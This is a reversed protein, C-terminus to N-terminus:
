TGSGRTFAMNGTAAATQLVASAGTVEPHVTVVVVAGPAVPYDVGAVAARVAGFVGFSVWAWSTSINAIQIQRFNNSDVGPLRPSNGAADTTGMFASAILAGDAVDPVTAKYLPEFSRTENM